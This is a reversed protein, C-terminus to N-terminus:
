LLDVQIQDTVPTIDGYQWNFQLQRDYPKQEDMSLVSGNIM